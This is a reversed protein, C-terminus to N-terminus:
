VPQPGTIPGRTTQRAADAKIAKEAVARDEAVLGRVMRVALCEVRAMERVEATAGTVCREALTKALTDLKPLYYESWAPCNELANVASLVRHFGELPMAPAAAPM